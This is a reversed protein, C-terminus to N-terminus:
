ALRRHRHLRSLRGDASHQHRRDLEYRRLRPHSSLRVAQQRSYRQNQHRGVLRDRRERPRSLGQQDVEPTAALPDILSVLQHCPEWELGIQDSPVENFMMEWATPSHAINWQGSEWTDGMDCNEFALRVGRDAARQALPAFVEKYRPMSEDLKANRVRGAFGAIVNAGFLHAHDILAEWGRVTELDIPTDGLPNGFIGLCNVAIDDSGIVEKVELALNKLNVDGLKQWFTISVSEFGHPKIQRIYDAANKNGPVLTGIRINTAPNNM